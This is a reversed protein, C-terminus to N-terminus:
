KILSMVSDLFKQLWSQEEGMNVQEGAAEVYDKKPLNVYVKQSEDIKQMGLMESAAKQINSLNLSSQISIETQANEKQLLSLQKKLQEKKNFSETILSHRYSIAFLIAFGALIYVITKVKAKVGKKEKKAQSNQKNQEVKPTQKKQKLTSTKKKSYPSKPVDYEPKLKRPSTEYQYGAQRYAM